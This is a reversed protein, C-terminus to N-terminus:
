ERCMSASNSAMGFENICRLAERSKMTMEAAIHKAVPTGCAWVPRDESLWAIRSEHHAKDARRQREHLATAQSEGNM